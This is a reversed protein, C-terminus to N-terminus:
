LRGGGVNNAEMTTYPAVLLRLVLKEEPVHLYPLTSDDHHRYSNRSDSAPHTEKHLMTRAKYALSNYRSYRGMRPTQYAPVKTRIDYTENM